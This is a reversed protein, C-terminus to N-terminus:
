SRPVSPDVEQSWRDIGGALSKLHKFGREKLKQLATMSRKGKYCYLYIEEDPNLEPIYEEFKSLPTLRAREIRAIEWEHPERVDLLTIPRGLDLVHKLEAGTVELTGNDAAVGVKAGHAKAGAADAPAATRSPLPVACFAEYDILRDITPHDGCLECKPNRRIRVEKFHMKLSNYLMLRGKLPEGVGVIMKLTETAMIM